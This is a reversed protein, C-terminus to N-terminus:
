ITKPNLDLCGGLDATDSASLKAAYKMKRGHAKFFTGRM